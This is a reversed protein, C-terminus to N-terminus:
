FPIFFRDRNKFTVMGEFGAEKLLLYAEDFHQGVRQPFHADSNVCVAVGEERFLGLFRRDPYFDGFPRNRGNTNLEFAVDHKKMAKALHRYLPEPNMAPKHGFIRLLDFHAIIDFIGSEVAEILLDFYSSYLDDLNKDLYFDPSSDVSSEGIYHVSGIIYDLKVPELFDYIESTKGTFFDVELGTRVAIEKEGAALIKIYDIYEPLISVPMCWKQNERYLNLHESFGIESLGAAKATVIYDEPFAKGDSFTSHIHYDTRYIM